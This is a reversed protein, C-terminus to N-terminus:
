GGAGDTTRCRLAACCVGVHTEDFAGCLVAGPVRAPPRGHGFVLFSDTTTALSPQKRAAPPEPEAADGTRGDGPEIVFRFANFTLPDPHSTPDRHISHAPVCLRIGAPVHLPDATSEFDIGHPNSVVRPLQIHSFDSIRMSERITSDIRVLQDLQAKTWCVGPEQPLVRDCEEELGAVFSEANPSSYLDALAHAIAMATTEISVFNLMLLRQTLLLPDLEAADNRQLAAEILWQLVDVPAEWTCGDKRKEITEQVRRHIVPVCIERCIALDRRYWVTVVPAVVPRLWRPLLRIIIGARSVADSYRRLHELFAEDRCIDAGAFVRNATRTVIKFCTALLGIEKAAATDTGWYDEFSRHLEDHLAAAVLPLQRTLQRRVVDFQLPITAAHHGLVGQTYYVQLQDEHIVNHDLDADPKSLYERLSAPPLVLWSPEGINPLAFATKAQSFRHFGDEVMERVSTIIRLKSRAGSFWENRVGAWPQSAWFARHTRSRNLQIVYSAIVVALVVSLALLAPTSEPAFM